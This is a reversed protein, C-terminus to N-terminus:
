TYRAYVETTGDRRVLLVDYPEPRGFEMGPSGVPMNPVTLGVADPREALLSRVERAPVHGEIVYGAVKGTHCATLGPKLGADLKEKMLAGMALDKAEVTFGAEKLHEIWGLCCGCGLTKLVLVKEGAAGAPSAALGALLLPLGFATRRTIM